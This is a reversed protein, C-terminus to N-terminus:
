GFAGTRELVQLFLSIIKAPNVPFWSVGRGRMGLFSIWAFCNGIDRLLYSGVIEGIGLIPSLGCEFFHDGTHPGISLCVHYITREWSSELGSCIDVFMFM